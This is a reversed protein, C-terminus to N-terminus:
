REIMLRGSTNLARISAPSVPNVYCWVLRVVNQPLLSNRRADLAKNSPTNLTVPKQFLKLKGDRDKYKYLRGTNLYLAYAVNKTSIQRDKFSKMLYRKLAPVARKDGIEGLAYVITERVNTAQWEYWKLKEDILVHESTSLLRSSKLVRLLAPVSEAAKFIGLYRAAQDAVHVNDSDLNAISEKVLVDRSKAAKSGQAFAPQPFALFFILLYSFVCKEFM